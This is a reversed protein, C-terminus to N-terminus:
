AHPKVTLDVAQQQKKLRVLVIRLAAMVPVSFFMGPIGAVQEGALVGFLVLLPHIAVGASMLHPSVAYDQFLRFVGLFVVLWLLHPYGSLGAVILIVAASVLPGAVPIVELLAAITALLFAYPVGVIAFFVAFIAFVLLALVVLARIYQVLLRHLDNLIDDVIVRRRPAFSEVITQRMLNGDKLFFFSLIPILVAALVNGLGSLIGTGVTELAPLVAEDLQQVRERVTETLAPRRDELWSPLPIRGLPDNQLAQPLRGALTAAQQGVESVVPILIATAVGLLALYVIALAMGHSLRRPMYREVREVIPGILHALFIALTFVVLTHGILYVLGVGSVFLFVTWSAKLARSHIGFM